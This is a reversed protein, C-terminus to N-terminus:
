GTGKHGAAHDVPVILLLIVLLIVQLDYLDYILVEFYILIWIGQFIWIM